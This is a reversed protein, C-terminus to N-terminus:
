RELPTPEHFPEGDSDIDASQYPEQPPPYEPFKEPRDLWRIFLLLALALLLFGASIFVFLEM